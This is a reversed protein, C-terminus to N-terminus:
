AVPAENAPVPRLTGFTAESPLRAHRCVMIGNRSGDVNSNGEITQCRGDPGPGSMWLWVHSEGKGHDAIGVDGPQPDGTVVKDQNLEWLRKGSSSFTLGATGEEDAAHGIVWWVFQACWSDAASPVRGAYTHYEDVRPGRNPATERIGVEGAAIDLVKSVFDTM